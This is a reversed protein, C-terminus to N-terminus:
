NSNKLNDPERDFHVKSLKVAKDLCSQSMFFLVVGLLTVIFVYGRSVGTAVVSDSISQLYAALGSLVMVFILVCIFVGSLFVLRKTMSNYRSTLELRNGELNVEIYRAGAKGFDSLHCFAYPQEIFWTIEDKRLQRKTVANFLVVIEAHHKDVGDDVLTRIQQYIEHLNKSKSWSYEKIKILPIALGLLMVLSILLKISELTM